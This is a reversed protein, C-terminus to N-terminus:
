NIYQLTKMPLKIFNYLSLILTNQKYIIINAYM